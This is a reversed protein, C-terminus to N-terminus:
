NKMEAQLVSFFFFFMQLSPAKELKFPEKLESPFCLFQLVSTLVKTQSNESFFQLIFYSKM